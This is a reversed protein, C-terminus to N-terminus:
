RIIPGTLRQHIASSIEGKFPTYTRGDGDVTDLNNIGVCSVCSIKSKNQTNNYSPIINRVSKDFEVCISSLHSSTKRYVLNFRIVVDNTIAKTFISELQSM